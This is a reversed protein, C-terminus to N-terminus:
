AQEDRVPDLVGRYLALRELHVMKPKQRHGKRIRYIVDNIRNIVTYPGEWVLQLKPSLGKKRQPNHLWVLQGDDFGTNNARIDYRAKMRDNSVKIKNRVFQHVENIEANLQNM